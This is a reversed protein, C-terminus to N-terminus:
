ADPSKERNAVPEALVIDFMGVDEAPRVARSGAIGALHRQCAGGHGRGAALTRKPKPSCTRCYLRPPPRLRAPNVPSAHLVEVEPTVGAM